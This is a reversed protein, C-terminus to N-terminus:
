EAGTAQVTNGLTVSLTLMVEGEEEASMRAVCTLM